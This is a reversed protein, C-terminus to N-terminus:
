KLDPSRSPWRFNNSNNGIWNTYTRNLYTTVNTATHTRAGDLFIIVDELAIDPFLIPLDKEIRNELLFLFTDSNCPMKRYIQRSKRKCPEYRSPIDISDFFYLLPGRTSIGVLVMLGFGNLMREFTMHPNADTWFYTNHTCPIDSLKLYIEDFFIANSLIEPKEEIEKLLSYCFNYRALFNTENLRQIFVPRYPKWKLDLRLIRHATKVSCIDLDRKFDALSRSFDEAFYEAVTQITEPTRVTKPRGPPSIKSISGTSVFKRHLLYMFKRTPVIKASAEVWKDCFCKYKKKVDLYLLLATTKEKDTYYVM